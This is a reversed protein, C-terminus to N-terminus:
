VLEQRQGHNAQGPIEQFREDPQLWRDIDSKRYRPHGGFPFHPLGDKMLRNIKSVDCRLYKALETKTLLEPTPKTFENRLDTVVASAAQRVIEDLREPTIVILESM